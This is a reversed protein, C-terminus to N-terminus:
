GDCGKGISGYEDKKTFRTFPIWGQDPCHFGWVRYAPGTLFLTWCPEGRLEVRHAIRGSWRVRIDGAQLVSREIIGGALIRHETYTGRLLISCNAWPHDHLARDDDSRLFLHLYINFFRNRPIVYWRILYPRDYGGIVFNPDRARIVEILKDARAKLLNKIWTKLM